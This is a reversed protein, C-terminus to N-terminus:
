HLEAYSKELVFNLFYYKKRSYKILHVTFMMRLYEKRKVKTSAWDSLDTGSFRMKLISVRAIHLKCKLVAMKSKVRQSEIHMSNSSPVWKKKKWIDGPRINVCQTCFRYAPIM